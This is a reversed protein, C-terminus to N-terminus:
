VLWSPFDNKLKHDLGYCRGAGTLLIVVLMIGVAWSQQNVTPFFLLYHILTIGLGLISFLRTFAGVGIFLGLMMNSFIALFAFFAAHPEIVAQFFDQLFAFPYGESVIIPRLKELMRSPESLWRDGINHFSQSVFFCGLYLRLPLVYWLRTNIEGHPEYMNNISNYSQM